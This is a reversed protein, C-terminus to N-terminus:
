RAALLLGSWAAAVILVVGPALRLVYARSGSVRAAVLKMVSNTSFGILIPVLTASPAITGRRALAGVSAAVAHADAFGAVFAGAWLGRPGLWERLLPVGAMALGLTAALAIATGPHFARGVQVDGVTARRAQLMFWGGYLMAVAGAALLPAIMAVLTPPDVVVLVVAMQVVTAVSSLMGAAVAPALLRPDRAARSGMAAITAVSSVFGAALGALPLGHRPGLVRAGVHGLMGIGLILVVLRWLTHLNVAGYPGLPRDPLLPLVVLAAAALLLADHLEEASVVATAFRHLRTRMALVLAVVVGLASGLRPHGSALAGLLVTLFLAVETTLGPDDTDIRRFALVVLAGVFGGALLLAPLGGLRMAVAGLLATLAFTRIGAPARTPGTGKRRERELGILLGIGLAAGLGLVTGDDPFMERRGSSVRNFRGAFRAM